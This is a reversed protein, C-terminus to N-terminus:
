QSDVVQSLIRSAAIGAGAMGLIAWRSKKPLKNFSVLTTLLDIFDAMGAAEVWGRVKADHRISLLIGAALAIDRGGMARSLVESGSRNAEEGIWTAALAAPAVLATLGIAGRLLAFAQTARIATAPKITIM